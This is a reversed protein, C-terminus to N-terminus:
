AGLVGTKGFLFLPSGNVNGLTIRESIELREEVIEDAGFAHFRLEFVFESSACCVVSPPGASIVPTSVSMRSNMISPGLTDDGSALDANTRISSLFLLLWNASRTNGEVIGSRGCAHRLPMM